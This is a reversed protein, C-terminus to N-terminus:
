HKTIHTKLEIIRFEIAYRSERNKFNKKQEELEIQFGIEYFIKNSLKVKKIDRKQRFQDSKSWKM